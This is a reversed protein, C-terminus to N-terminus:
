IRWLAELEGLPNLRTEWMRMYGDLYRPTPDYGIGLYDRKYTLSWQIGAPLTTADPVTGLASSTEVVSDDAALTILYGLQLSYPGFENWGEAGLWRAWVRLVHARTLSTTLNCDLQYTSEGTVAREFRVKDTAGPVFQLADWTLTGHQAHLLPKVAAVTAPLDEARWFPQVEVVATGRDPSWLERGWVQDMKHVDAERTIAADLVVQPPRAGAVTADTYQVDFLATHLTVPGMNGSFRGVGVTYSSGEFPYFTGAGAAYLATIEADSLVRNYVAVEDIEGDMDAATENGGIIFDSTAAGLDATSNASWVDSNTASGLAKCRTITTSHDYTYVVFVWNGRNDGLEVSTGYGRRNYLRHWPGSWWVEMYIGHQDATSTKTKFPMVAYNSDPLDAALKVWGCWTFDGNTPIVQVGTSLYEDNEKTFSAATGNKGAASTVTNTDTLTMAGVSDARTGSTEDLDWYHILGDDLTSAAPITISDAIVEGYPDDSPIDNYVASTDWTRTTNNWYNPTALDDHLYWEGNQSAPTPISTNKILLQIHLRGAALAGLSKERGGAGGGAGYELKSSSLYGQEEVMSVTTDQSATFTGASGVTAWGAQHTDYNRFCKVADGGGSCALGHFSVNPYAALVRYLVSDGPRPSWADQNRSHTFSKGKDILALGQIEPNWPMDIRYAGWGLCSYPRLDFVEDECKFAEPEYTRALVLGARRELLRTGWGEGTVSPGRPHTMYVKEGIASPMQDIFGHPKIVNRARRMLRLEYSTSARVNDIYGGLDEITLTVKMYPVRMKFFSGQTQDYVKGNPGNYFVSQYGVILNNIDDLTWPGGEPHATMTWEMVPTLSWVDGNSPQTNYDNVPNLSVPTSQGLYWYTGPLRTVGDRAVLVMRLGPGATNDPPYWWNNPGSQMTDFQTEIKVEEFTALTPGPEFGILHETGHPGWSYCWQDTGFPTGLTYGNWADHATVSPTAKGPYGSTAPHVAGPTTSFSQNGKLFIERRM